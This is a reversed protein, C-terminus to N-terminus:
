EVIIGDSKLGALVSYDIEIPMNQYRYYVKKLVNRIIRQRFNLGGVTDDSDKRYFSIAKCKYGNHLFFVPMLFEALYGYLRRARSYSSLKVYKECEFLISFIWEAYKEFLERRCLFMNLPYDVYDNAYRSMTTYYDPYLKKLVMQMIALDESGVFTKLWNWRNYHRFVPGVLLVDTGDAFYSNVNDITIEEGLYRRYHCFGIYGTDHFNKWAWYQGTMESYYPNKASINDGTDDGIMETMEDKCKSVARGVHIPTYVENSIIDCPKHCAVFIKVKSQVMKRNLHPVIIINQHRVM